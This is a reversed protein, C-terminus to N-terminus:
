QVMVWDPNSEVLRHYGVYPSVPGVFTITQGLQLNSRPTLYDYIIADSLGLDWETFGGGSQPQGTLQASVRVMQYFDVETILDPEAVLVCNGQSGAVFNSAATIQGLSIFTSVETAKFSIRMGARVEFNPCCSQGLEPDLSVKLLANEDAIWFDTRSASVDPGPTAGATATVVAWPPIASPVPTPPPAVAAITEGPWASAPVAAASALATEVFSSAPLVARPIPTVM